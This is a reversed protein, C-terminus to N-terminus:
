KYFLFLNDNGFRLVEYVKFPEGVELQVQLRQEYEALKSALQTKVETLQQQVEILDSKLTRVEEEKSQLSKNTEALEQDKAHLKSYSNYLEIINVGESVPNDSLIAKLQKAIEGVVPRKNPLDQLCKEVLKKLDPLQEFRLFYKERREQETLFLMKGTEKDQVKSAIPVPWQMGILHITVCGLSFVDIPFGYDSNDSLAEPPMFTLTGPAITHKQADGALLKAMGLDAIKAVLYKTLLVNNSSLDRHAISKSHLFQLGQCVDVLISLKFNIPIDKKEHKEILGTLSIYMLEMVMWPLEADPTPYHIGIFQVLNPHLLQSSQVCETLFYQSFKDSALITHMEKAACLTGNVEVEFVTAYSGRGLEKTSTRRVESLRLRRLDEKLRECSPQAM